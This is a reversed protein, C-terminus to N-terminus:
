PATFTGRAIIAVSANQTGANWAIAASALGALGRRPTIRYIAVASALGAILYIVLLDGLSM